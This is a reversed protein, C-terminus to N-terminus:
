YLRGGPRASYHYLCPMNVAPIDVSASKVAKGYSSPRKARQVGLALAFIGEWSYKIVRYAQGTAQIQSDMLGVLTAMSTIDFGFPFSDCIPVSILSSIILESLNETM